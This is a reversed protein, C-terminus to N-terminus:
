ACPVGSSTCGSAELRARPPPRLYGGCGRGQSALRPLDFSLNLLSHVCCTLSRRRLMGDLQAALRASRWTDSFSGGLQQGTRHRAVRRVRWSLTGHPRSPDYEAALVHVHHRSSGRPGPSLRIDGIRCRAAAPFRPDHLVRLAVAVPGPLAAGAGSLKTYLGDGALLNTHTGCEVIRGRDMVYIRRGTSHFTPSIVPAGAVSCGPVPAHNRSRGAPRAVSPEDLILIGAGALVGAGDRRAAM